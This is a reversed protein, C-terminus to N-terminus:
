WDRLEDDKFFLKSFLILLDSVVCLENLEAHIHQVTLSCNERWFDCTCVIFSPFCSFLKHVFNRSFVSPKLYKKNSCSHSKPFTNVHYGAISNEWNYKATILLLLIM